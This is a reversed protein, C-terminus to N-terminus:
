KIAIFGTFAHNQWFSDVQTFGADDVMDLLEQRTNPKMMHRLTREKDMIDETSFSERKFDYYTFTRIEHIRASAAVTKEAFIFAGGEHLGNYISAIIDHRDRQPMFQLTFISTVLSCNNFYYDRVDCTEYKLRKGSEAYQMDEEFGDYFDEEIEVGIYNAEPAFTNQKIMAKLLKGTSCGIDVVNTNDEVFYQSMSLVDNWLDGYHRISANIHNDFGEDRTAFTFKTM